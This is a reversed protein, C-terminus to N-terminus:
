VLRDKIEIRDNEDKFFIIFLLAVVAAIIAPGRMAAPWHHGIVNQSENLIQYKQLIWGGVWSGLLWGIGYTILTYFGQVGARVTDPAKKDVYIQGTVYFFDYCVGHLLIGLYLLFLLEAGNGISFFFYRAVWALMGIMAMKKVGLRVFFFPMILMFVLESMQGLTMKGAANEIGSENLFMNTFPHYMAFPLTILLSCIILVAFSRNKMLSLADLGLIDKVTINKQSAVTPTAPLFFSFVGLLISCGAALLMPQSGTEINLVSILIGAVIWGITGFVRIRPFEKGASTTQRFSIANTLAITPMYFIMYLLLVWFFLGPSTIRSVFYMTIGGLIHLVGTLKEAAFYRDAVLSVFFSSVIAGWAMTSYANGVETGQFGIKTLYIGMTVYWVGWIFYELFMMTSLQIRILPKM